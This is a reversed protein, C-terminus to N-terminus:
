QIVASQRAKDKAQRASQFLEQAGPCSPVAARAEQANQMAEDYSRNALARQGAKVLVACEVMKSNDARDVQPLQPASLPPKTVPAPIAVIPPSAEAQPTPVPVEPPRWVAIEKRVRAIDANDRDIREAENVSARALDPQGGELQSRAQTLKESAGASNSDLRQKSATADQRNLCAGPQKDLTQQALKLRGDAIQRDAQGVAKTCSEDAVHAETASKLLTKARDQSEGTCRAVAGLAQTKAQAFQSAQISEAVSELAQQCLDPPKPKLFAAWVAYGAGALLLLGILKMFTGVPKPPVPVPAVPEVSAPLPAPQKAPRVVAAQATPATPAAKPTVQPAAAPAAPM